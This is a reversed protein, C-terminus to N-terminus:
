ACHQLKERIIKKTDAAVDELGLIWRLYDPDKSSVKSLSVGNYQGKALVPKGDRTTFWKGSDLYKSPRAEDLFEALERVTRPLRYKEIQAELVRWTACADEIASHAKDHESNCYFRVADTLTRTENLHYIEMADIVNCDDHDFTIGARRFEAKLLLLDFTKLNFGALDCGHVFRALQRAITKFRPKHKVDENGMGHVATAEKPIRIGPRVRKRFRVMKGDPTVKLIGIEIIRDIETSTGTTELDIVALPRDLKLRRTAKVDPTLKPSAM